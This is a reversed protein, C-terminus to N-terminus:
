LLNGVIVLIRIVPTNENSIDLSDLKLELEYRLREQLVAISNGGTFDEMQPNRLRCSGPYIALISQLELIVQESREDLDTSGLLDDIMRDLDNAERLDTDMM